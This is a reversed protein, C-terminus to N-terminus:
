DRGGIPWTSFGAANNVGAVTRALSHTHVRDLFQRIDERLVGFYHAPGNNESACSNRGLGKEVMQVLAASDILEQFPTVTNRSFLKLRSKDCTTEAISRIVPGSM